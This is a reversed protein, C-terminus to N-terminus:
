EGFPNGDVVERFLDALTYSLGINFEGALTQHAMDMVYYALRRAITVGLRQLTKEHAQRRYAVTMESILGKNWEICHAALERAGHIRLQLHRGMDAIRRDDDSEEDGAQEYLFQVIRESFAFFPEANPPLGKFFLFMVVRADGQEWAEALTAPRFQEFTVFAFDCADHKICFAVFPNDSHNAIVRAKVDPAIELNSM